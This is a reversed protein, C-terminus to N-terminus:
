DQIQADTLASIILYLVAILVVVQVALVIMGTRAMRWALGREGKWWLYGFIFPQLMLGPTTAWTLYKLAFYYVEPMAGFVLTMYVLLPMMISGVLCYFALYELKQGRM